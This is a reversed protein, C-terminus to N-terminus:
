ENKKDDFGIPDRKASIGKIHRRGEANKSSRHVSCHPGTLLDILSLPGTLLGNRQVGDTRLSQWVRM